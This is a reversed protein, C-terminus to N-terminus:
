TNYIKSFFKCLECYSIEAQCVYLCSNDRDLLGEAHLDQECVSNM